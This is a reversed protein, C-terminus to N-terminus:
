FYAGHVLGVARRQRHLSDHTGRFAGFSHPSYCLGSYTRHRNRNRHLRVPPQNEYLFWLASASSPSFSSVWASALLSPILFFPIGFLWKLAAAHTAQIERHM